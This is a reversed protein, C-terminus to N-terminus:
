VPRVLVTQATWQETDGGITFVGPDLTATLDEKTATLLTASSGAGIGGLLQVKLGNIFDTPYSVFTVGTHWDVGAAAFWLGAEAGAGNTLSPPNPTYSDGPVATGLLPATAAKAGTIRFFRWAARNAGSGVTLTITSGETGDAFRYGISM